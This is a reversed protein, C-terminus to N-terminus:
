PVLETMVTGTTCKSVSGLLPVLVKAGAGFTLSALAAARLSPVGPISLLTAMSWFTSRGIGTRKCLESVHQVPKALLALYVLKSTASLDHRAIIIATQRADSM